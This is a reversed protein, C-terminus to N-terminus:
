GGRRLTARGRRARPVLCTGLTASRLDVTSAQADGLTFQTTPTFGSGLVTLTLTDGVQVVGTLEAEDGM